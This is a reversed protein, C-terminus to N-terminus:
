NPFCIHITSLVALFSIFPFLFQFHLFLFSILICHIAQLSHSIQPHFYSISILETSNLQEMSDSERRGWSGCCALGGQGDVVGPTLEFELGNLQHHWGVIEDETM